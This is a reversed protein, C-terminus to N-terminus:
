ESQGRLREFETTVADQNDELFRRRIEKWGEALQEQSARRKMLVETVLSRTSILSFYVSPRRETPSMTEAYLWDAFQEADELVKEEAMDLLTEHSVLPSLVANM